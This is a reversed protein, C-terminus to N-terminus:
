DVSDHDWRAHKQDSSAAHLHVSADKNCRAIRGTPSLKFGYWPRFLFSLQNIVLCVLLHNSVLQCNHKSNLYCCVFYKLYHFLWVALYFFPIKVHQIRKMVERTAEFSQWGGIGVKANIFKSLCTTSSSESKCWTDCIDPLVDCWVTGKFTDVDDHCLLRTTINELLSSLRGLTFLASSEELVDVVKFSDTGCLAACFRHIFKSAQIM